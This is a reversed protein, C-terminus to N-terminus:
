VLGDSCVIRVVQPESLQSMESDDPPSLRYRFQLAELRRLLAQGDLRMNRIDTLANEVQPSLDGLFTSRLTEIRQVEASNERSESRIIGLQKSIFRRNRSDVRRRSKGLRKGLEQQFQDFAAMVRENTQPPLPQAPTDPQCEAAAIFQSPSIPRPSLEDDVAYCNKVDGASLLVLTEGPQPDDFPSRDSELVDPSMLPMQMREIELPIQISAGVPLEAQGSPVRLASRLGDPLDTITQWLDPDHEQIRQLLAIARQNASVEDLKEDIEPLEKGEYIRYMANGNLREADSLLKSDLGILDHFSQIRNHLRDTLSLEADVALDPLMNHLHIRDHESGIRDVRGFRQILRVPNWHLDYNLVRACDQLNQGESVIDTALLVRIEPGRLRENPSLNWTPAFRKVINEAQNRTSGTMRAIEPIQGDPNLQSYLYEVTTEAESFILVKGSKVEPRNLFRRLVHLKDDDEPGIDEVRDHIESLLAYDADLDKLWRDVLFDSTDHVLKAKELNRDRRRKEELRLIDLLEAADFSQGSLLRTATDGIPVFGSALAQRFNQNSRILSDLTSRFAEISSELRKFLLVHMLRAIRNRARFLDRYEEKEEAEPRIYDIVRYRAGRHEKLAAELQDFPGAKAYVKDLRYDLNSLEPKPFRVPRGDIMATEAYLEEVDKRRRRIFVPTLVQEVDARPVTPKAPPLPFEGKSGNRKWSEHEARFNEYEARYRHWTEAYRFYEELALPEINLGHNVEDLFLRIQRYIDRPGLNQPTASLLIVKHDGADLYNRLGTSRRNINRFNHAEDVLVPGRNPYEQELIIGHGSTEADIYHGLEEDFDADPASTIISHSIVEAGLNFIENVRQWMPRLGAPAVILPMGENPYSVRLQRLLEAGIFTKGLGVVDGIYCGGYQEIMALARSVADVQFNALEIDHSTIPLPTAAGVETGYLEYLAKLYIHYPSTSAVAWSRDLENVLSDSIDESDQWLDNFWRRLEAMEADGTVRVNLETNGTFGALTFNSSGVVASGHEAHGQQYWCLYAKAHLRSRLYARVEVRGAAIMDRLRAVAEKTEDTQPLVSVGESVNDVAQQALGERQSRRITEDSQLRSKLAQAQQLGLAVEEVVRGDTRGVLIRVKQLRDLQDAVAQFGSMFFYGVAIDARESSSLMQHLRDILPPNTTAHLINM